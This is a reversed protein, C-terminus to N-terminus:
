ALVAQHVQLIFVSSPLVGCGICEGIWWTLTGMEGGPELMMWGYGCSYCVFCFLFVGVVACGDSVITSGADTVFCFGGNVLVLDGDWGGPEFMVWGCGCFYFVFVFVFFVCVCVCFLVVLVMVWLWAVLILLLVSVRRTMETDIECYDTVSVSQLTLPILGMEPILKFNFLHSCVIHEWDLLDRRIDRQNEPLFLAELEVLFTFVWATLQCEFPFFVM